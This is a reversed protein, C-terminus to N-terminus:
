GLTMVGYSGYVAVRAVPHYLKLIQYHFAPLATRLEIINVNLESVFALQARTSILYQKLTPITARGGSGRYNWSLISMKAGAIIRTARLRKHFGLPPSLSDRNPTSGAKSPVPDQLTLKRAHAALNTSCPAATNLKFNNPDIYLYAPNYENASNQSARGLKIIYNQGAIIPGQQNSHQSLGPPQIQQDVKICEEHNQLDASPYLPTTPQSHNESNSAHSPTHPSPPTPPLPRPVLSPCNIWESKRHDRLLPLEHRHNYVLDACLQMVRNRRACGSIDHGIIGCYPCLRSAREYVFYVPMVGLTPHDLTLHDELVKSAVFSVKAKM